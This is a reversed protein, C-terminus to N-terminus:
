KVLTVTGTLVEKEGDLFEVEIVYTYVGTQVDKGNFQGNWGDNPNNAQIDTRAFVQEGWRDYVSMKRVSKVVQSGYVMFIPNSGESTPRFVNPVFVPRQKDVKVLVNGQTKCGNKDTLTVTYRTQRNPKVWQQLCASDKACLSDNYISWGIKKINNSNSNVSLLLSDGLKIMTDLGLSIVLQNDQGIKVLTDLTCGAADQMYLRFDGAPLNNFIKRQTFVKGDLSYIFPSTGGQVTDVVIKANQEGYCMPKVTQFDISSPRALNEKIVISDVSACRNIENLILLLYTGPKDVVATLANEGSVINGGQRAIWTYSIGNGLSSGRGSISVKPHFCDLSDTAVANAVPVDYDGRVDVSASDVCGNLTNTIVLKYKAISDIQPEYTTSDKFFGNNTSTWKFTFKAGSSSGKADLTLITDICNLVGPKAIIAIPKIRDEILKVATSNTCGNSINTVKLGYDGGSRALIKANNDFSSGNLSWLYTIGLPTSTGGNLTMTDRRCTLSDTFPSIIAKPSVTDIYVVVNDTSFCGGETARITYTDAQRVEQTPNNGSLSGGLSSWQILINRGLQTNGGIVVSPETCTITKDPGADTTPTPLINVNVYATDPPCTSTAAPSVLYGFRYAGTVQNISKFTRAVASFAGGTSPTMSSESWAGGLDAGRLLNTLNITTDLGACINIATDLGALVPTSIVINTASSPTTYLCGLSDRVSKFVLLGNNTPCYNAKTQGKLLLITTDRATGDNITITVQYPAFGKSNFLLSACTGKCVNISPSALNVQSVDYFVVSVATAPTSKFCPDTIDVLKGLKNGAVASIYLTEGYTMLLPDFGFVPSKSEALIFMKPDGRHLVFYTTDNPELVAGNLFTARASDGNCVKLKAPQLTGPNTVCATCAQNGQIVTPSCSNADRVVFSYNGPKFAVSQFQGNVVKGALTTTNEFFVNYPATGLNLNFRVFASDRNANCSDKVSNATVIPTTNFTIEVTDSKSCSGQTETWAFKYKGASTVTVQSTPSLKDSIITVGLNGTVGSWTGKGTSSVANFNTSLTCIATDNGANLNPFYSVTVIIIRPQGKKGCDNEPTVEITDVKTNPNWVVTLIDNETLTTVTDKSNYTFQGGGRLIKWRYRTADAAKASLKFTSPTTPSCETIALTNNILGPQSPVAFAGTGTIRFAVTDYYIKFGSLPKGTISVSDKIVIRFTDPSLIKRISGTGTILQPTGTGMTFWQNTTTHTVNACKNSQNLNFLISDCNLMLNTPTYSYTIKANFVTDNSPTIILSSCDTNPSYIAGGINVTENPRLIYSRGLPQGIRTITTHYVTDCGGSGSFIGSFTTDTVTTALLPKNNPNNYTVVRDGALVGTEGVKLTIPPLEIKFETGIDVVFTKTPGVTCNNEYNAMVNLFGIPVFAGLSVSRFSDINSGGGISSGNIDFSFTYKTANANKPISFTVDAADACIQTPGYIIIPAALDAASVTQITGAQVDITYDCFSGSYGDILLYYTQGAVLGFASVTGTNVSKPLNLCNSVGKFSATDKCDNASFIMAQFGSNLPDTCNSYIFRLDLTPSQAVFRYWSPSEISGCFDKPKFFNTGITPIQIQNAFMDLAPTNCFAEADCPNDQHMQAKLDASSFVAIFSLLLLLKKTM